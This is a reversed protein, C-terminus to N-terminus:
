DKATKTRQHINISKYEWATKLAAKATKTRQHINISKYRFAIMNMM